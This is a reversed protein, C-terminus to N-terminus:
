FRAQIGATARFGRDYYGVVTSYEDDLLDSTVVLLPSSASIAGGPALLQKWRDEHAIVGRFTKTVPDSNSTFGDTRTRTSHVVTLTEEFHLLAGAIATGIYGAESM